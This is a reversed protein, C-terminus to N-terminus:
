APQLAGLGSLTAEETQDEPILVGQHKLVERLADPDEQNPHVILAAVFNNLYDLVLPVGAAFQEWPVRQKDRREINSVAHQYLDRHAGTLEFYMWHSQYRGWRTPGLNYSVICAKRTKAELIAELTKDNAQAVRRNPLPIWSDYARDDIKGLSIAKGFRVKM